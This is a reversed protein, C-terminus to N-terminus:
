GHSLIIAATEAMKRGNNMSQRQLYRHAQSETMLHREMLLTKAEDIIRKEDDSRHVRERVPPESALEISELTQLLDSKSLPLNLALMGSPLDYRLASQAASLLVIVNAGQPLMEYLDKATMDALRFGCVIPPLMEAMREAYRIVEAGSRCDCQVSYGGQVVANKIVTSARDNQFALLVSKM